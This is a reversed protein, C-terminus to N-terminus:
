GAFRLAMSYLHIGYDAQITMALWGGFPVDQSVVLRAANELQVDSLHTRELFRVAQDRWVCAYLRRALHNLYRNHIPELLRPKLVRRMLFFGLAGAAVALSIDISELGVANAAAYGGLFGASITGLYGLGGIGFAVVFSGNWRRGLGTSATAEDLSHLFRRAQMRERSSVADSMVEEPNDFVRSAVEHAVILYPTLTGQLDLSDPPYAALLANPNHQFEQQCELFVRDARVEDREAAARLVRDVHRRYPHGALFSERDRRYRDLFELTDLESDMEGRAELAHEALWKMREDIWAGEARFLMARVARITFVLRGHIEPDHLTREVDDLLASWEPFAMEHGLRIWLPETLSYYPDQELVSAARRLVQIAAAQPLAERVHGWLLRFLGPEGRYAALGDLLWAAFGDEGEPEVVDALVALAYFHQPQKPELAALQRYIAEPSETELRSLISAAGSAPPASEMRGGPTAELDVPEFGGPPFRTERISPGAYGYRLWNDVTEFAARIKQFEVPCREPKYRRILANYRRRLDNRDFGDPLGFFRVPDEPLFQWPAEDDVMERM